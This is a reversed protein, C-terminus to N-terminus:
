RFADVIEQAETKAQNELKEESTMPSQGNATTHGGVMQIAHLKEKRDMLKKDEEILRAKEKNATEARKIANNSNNEIEEAAKKEAEEKEERIKIEEETETM